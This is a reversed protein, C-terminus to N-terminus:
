SSSGCLRAANAADGRLVGDIYYDLLGRAAKEDSAAILPTADKVWGDICMSKKRTSAACDLLRDFAQRYTAFTKRSMPAGHGPILTTFEVGDLRGLAEGWRKPCATDFFPVPLTVLDGAALVKTAPDYLWVDGATVAHSEFGIEFARGAITRKGSSAIREDPALAAGADILAIEAKWPATKTADDGAKAIADDLQAHYKALFGGHLAGDIADSAYIRVDPYAKRLMVNGGVHDLHWHSNVIAVVPKKAASAFDIVQQTHAPHRGTDFVVLSEPAEFVVTNGDPQTGPEFGGAILDVGPAVVTAANASAACLSIALWFGIEKM